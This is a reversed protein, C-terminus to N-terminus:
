IVENLKLIKGFKIANDIDKQNISDIHEDREEETSFLHGLDIQQVQENELILVTAAYNLGGNFARGESLEFLLTCDDFKKSNYGTIYPTMVNDGVMYTEFIDKVNM